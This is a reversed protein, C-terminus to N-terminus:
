APQSPPKYREIMGLMYDRAVPNETHVRVEAPWVMHEAMWLVLTRGEPEGEGLDNDLSAVEVYGTKLWFKAQHVNIAWTWSNDPPRRLDDLWLKM